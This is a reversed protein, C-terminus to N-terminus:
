PVFIAKACYLRAYNAIIKIAIVKFGRLLLLSFPKAGERGGATRVAGWGKIHAHKAPIPSKEAKATSPLHLTDM